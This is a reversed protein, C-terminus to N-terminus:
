LLRSGKIEANRHGRKEKKFYTCQYQESSSEEMKGGSRTLSVALFHWRRVLVGRHLFDKLKKFTM